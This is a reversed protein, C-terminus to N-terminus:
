GNRDRARAVLADVYAAELADCARKVDAIREDLRAALADIQAREGRLRSLLLALAAEDLRQTGCRLEHEAAVLGDALSRVNRRVRLWHAYTARM